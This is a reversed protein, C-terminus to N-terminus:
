AISLSSSRTLNQQPALPNGKQWLVVGGGRYLLLFDSLGKKFLGRKVCDSIESRSGRIGSGLVASRPNHKSTVARVEDCRRQV